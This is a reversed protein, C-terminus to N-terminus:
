IFLNKFAKDIQDQLTLIKVPRQSKIVRHTTGQRTNISQISRSQLNKGVDKRSVKTNRSKPLHSKIFAEFNAVTRVPVNYKFRKGNVFMVVTPFSLRYEDIDEDYEALKTHIDKYNTTISRTMVDDLKILQFNNRLKDHELNSMVKNFIPEFQVCFPCWSAFVFYLTIGDKLGERIQKLTVKTEQKQKSIIGNM